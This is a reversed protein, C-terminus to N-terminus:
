RAASPNESTSTCTIVARRLGQRVGTVASIAWAMMWAASLTNPWTGKTWPTVASPVMMAWMGMGVTSVPNPGMFGLRCAGSSFIAM